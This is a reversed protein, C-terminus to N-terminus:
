LFEDWTCCFRGTFEGGGVAEYAYNGALLWEDKSFSWQYLHICFSNKQAIIYLTVRYKM